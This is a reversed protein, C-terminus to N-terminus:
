AAGRLRQSSPTEWEFSSAPDSIDPIGADTSWDYARHEHQGEIRNANIYADMDIEVTEQSLGSRRAAYHGDGPWDTVSCGAELIASGNPAALAERDVGGGFAERELDAVVRPDAGRSRKLDLHQRIADDFSGVVHVYVASWM